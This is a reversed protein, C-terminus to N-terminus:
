DKRLVIPELGDLILKGAVQEARDESAYSGVRVTYFRAINTELPVIYVLEFKKSLREQLLKANEEEAYTAAQVTYRAAGRLPEITEIKVLASGQDVFGLEKAAGYSLELVRNKAFPGRDTIKVKISRFNELNTVRITENLPLTRHAASLGHMDFVEGSATKRGQMEKGAWTAIGTERYILDPGPMNPTLVVGSSPGQAIAPHNISEVQTATGACATLLAFACGTVIGVRGMVGYYSSRFRM